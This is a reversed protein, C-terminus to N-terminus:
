DKRRQHHSVPLVSPVLIILFTAFTLGMVADYEM